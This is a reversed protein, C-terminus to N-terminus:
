KKRFTKDLSSWWRLLDFWKIWISCFVPNGQRARIVSLKAKDKQEVSLQVCRILFTNWTCHASIRFQIKETGRDWGDWRQDTFATKRSSVKIFSKAARGSEAPSRRVGRAPSQCLNAEKDRDRQPLLQLFSPPFFPIFSLLFSPLFSPLFPRWM